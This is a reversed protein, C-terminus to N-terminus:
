EKEEARRRLREEVRERAVPIREEAQRRQDNAGGKRNDYEQVQRWDDPYNEQMWRAYNQENVARTFQPEIIDLRCRCNYREEPLGNPDAPFKMLNDPDLIGEGFYGQENPLTDNLLLHTDRTRNDMVANWKKRIDIGNERLYEYSQNRGYNEAATTATRANRIAANSDMTYVTQLRRAIGDMSDGQIIGQTIARNIHNSNWRQDIPINVVPLLQPNENLLAQVTRTNYIQFTGVSLGTDEAILNGVFQTFNFSQALILPLEGDRVSMATIDANVAVDTLSNILEEYKQKKLLNTQLWIQYEERTIEGELLRAQMINNQEEYQGLFRELKRTAEESAQEYINSISAEMELLRKDMKRAMFDGDNNSPRRIPM